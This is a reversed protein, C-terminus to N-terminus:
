EDFLLKSKKKKFIGYALGCVLFITKKYNHFRCKTGTNAYSHERQTDGEAAKAVMAGRRKFCRAAERVRWTAWILWNCRDKEKGAALAYLHRQVRVVAGRVSSRDDALILEM